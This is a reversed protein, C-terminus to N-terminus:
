QNVKEVVVFSITKGLKRCEAIKVQDGPQLKICDPVHAHYRSFKTEKREFKKIYRKYEKVVTASKIMSASEVIGTIVQGRVKLEGHFPCKRDHCEEKPPVVDLGINNTINIM